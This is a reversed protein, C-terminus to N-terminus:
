RAPMENIIRRVEGNLKDTVAKTVENALDGKMAAILSAGNLIVEVQSNTQVKIVSPISVSAFAKALLSAADAFAPITGALSKTSSDLSGLSVGLTQISQSLGLSAKSFQAVPAQFEQISKSFEKLYSLNAESSDSGAGSPKNAQVDGVPGGSARYISKNMRQLTPLNSAAAQANMVFEGPSLMASVTDTGHPVTGGDAFGRMRRNLLRRQRNYMNNYQQRYIEFPTIPQGRRRRDQRKDQSLGRRINLAHAEAIRDGSQGLQVQGLKGRKENETNIVDGFKSDFKDLLDGAKSVGEQNNTRQYEALRKRLQNRANVAKGFNGSSVSKDDISKSFAAFQSLTRQNLSSKAAGGANPAPFNRGNSRSLIEALVRNTRTPQPGVEEYKFTNQDKGRAAQRSALAEKTERLKREQEDNAARRAQIEGQTKARRAAQESAIDKVRQAHPAFDTQFQAFEQHGNDFGEKLGSMKNKFIFDGTASKFAADKKIEAIRDNTHQDRIAANSEELSDKLKYADVIGTSGGLKSVSNIIHLVGGSLADGIVEESASKKRNPNFGRSQSEENLLPNLAPVFEGLKPGPLHRFIPNLLANTVRHLLTDKITSDGMKMFAKGYDSAFSSVPQDAAQFAAELGEGGDKIRRRIFRGPMGGDALYASKGNIEELLGRHKRASRANVVFEGPTLMAPVTDTGRPKFISGGLAKNQVPISTSKKLNETAELLSKSSVELTKSVDDLSDFKSLGESQKSLSESDDAAAHIKDQLAGDPVSVAFESSAINNTLRSQEGKLFDLRNKRADGYAGALEKGQDFGVLKNGEKDRVFGKEQYDALRGLYSVHASEVTDAPVGLRSAVDGSAADLQDRQLELIKRQEERSSQSNLIPQTFAHGALTKSGGQVSELFSTDKQSINLRKLESQTDRLGPLDPSALIDRARKLGNDDPGTAFRNNLSEARKFISQQKDYAITASNKKTELDRVTESKILADLRSLFNTNLAEMNKIFADGLGKQIGALSELASKARDNVQNEQGALSERSGQTRKTDLNVFASQPNLFNTSKAILRESAQNGTLGNRLKADGVSRLFNLANQINQSSFGRFDGQQTAVQAAQAGRNLERIQSPDSTLLKEGFSLQGAREREVVAMKEQISSLETSTDALNELAKQLNSAELSLESLREQAQDHNGNPDSLIKQQDAIKAQTIRFRDAISTPSLGDEGALRRQRDNFPTRLQELSLFDEPNRGTRLSRLGAESRLTTLGAFSAQDQTSGAQQRFQGAQTRLNGVKNFQDQLQRVIDPFLSTEGGFASDTLNEALKAPNHNILSQIDKPDISDVAEELRKRLDDSFGEFAKKIDGPLSEESFDSGKVANTLKSPLGRKIEDVKLLRQGFEGALPGKLRNNLFSVSGAFAGPDAGGVRGAAEAFGGVQGPAIQGSFLHSITDASHQLSIISTSASDIAQGLRQFKAVEITSHALQSAQAEQQIRLLLSSKIIEDFGERVKDAPVNSIKAITNALKGGGLEDFAKLRSDRAANIGGQTDQDSRKLPLDKAALEAIRGGIQHFQPLQPALLETFKKKRAEAEDRQIQTNGSSLSTDGFSTSIDNGTFQNYAFKAIRGAGLVGAATLRPDDLARGVLSGKLNRDFFNGGGGEATVKRAAEQATALIGDNVRGIGSSISIKGNAVADIDSAFKAFVKDFKIEEIRNEAEQLSTTWGALAGVAAGIAPALPALPGLLPSVAGGVQAGIAGFSVAGGVAHATKAAEINGGRPNELTGFGQELIQPTFAALLLGNNQAGLGFGALKNNIKRPLSPGRSPTDSNVNQVLQEPTLGLKPNLGLFRGVRNNGLRRAIASTEINMNGLNQLRRIPSKTRNAKADIRAQTEDSYVASSSRGTLPDIDSIRGTADDINGSANRNIDRRALAEGARRIKEYNIEKRRDEPLKANRNAIKVELDAAYKDALHSEITGGGRTINDIQRSAAARARGQVAATPIMNGRDGLGTSQDRNVQLYNQELQKRLEAELGKSGRNKELRQIYKSVQSDRQDKTLEPSNHEINKSYQTILEKRLRDALLKQQIEPTQNAVSQANAHSLIQRGTGVPPVRVVRVTEMPDSSRGILPITSGDGSSVFNGFKVDEKLGSRGVKHSASTVPEIRVTPSVAAVTRTTAFGYSGGFNNPDFIPSNDVPQGPHVILPQLPSSRKARPASPFVDSFGARAFRTRSAIELPISHVAPRSKAAGLGRLFNIDDEPKAVQGRSMTYRPVQLEADNFLRQQTTVRERSKNSLFLEREIESPTKVGSDQFNLLGQGSKDFRNSDRKVPARMQSIERYDFPRSKVVQPTKDPSFLDIQRASPKVPPEGGEFEGYKTSHTHGFRAFAIQGQNKAPRRASGRIEEDIESGGHTPQKTQKKVEKTGDSTAKLIKELLAVIKRSDGNDGPDPSAVRTRPPRKGGKGGGAVIPPASTAEPEQTTASVTEAQPAPFAGATHYVSNPLSLSSDQTTSSVTPMYFGPGTSTSISPDAFMSNPVGLPHVSETRIPRSRGHGSLGDGGRPNPRSNSRHVGMALQDGNIFKFRRKEEEASLGQDDAFPIIQSFDEPTKYPQSYKKKYESDFEDNSKKYRIEAERNAEHTPDYDNLDFQVGVGRATHDNEIVHDLTNLERDGYFSGGADVINQSQRDKRSVYRSDGTKLLRERAISEKHAGADRVFQELDDGSAGKRKIHSILHNVQRASGINELENHAADIYDDGALDVNESHITRLRENAYAKAQRTIEKIRDPSFETSGRSKEAEAYQKLLPPQSVEKMIPRGQKDVRKTDVKINEGSLYRKQVQEIQKPDRSDDISGQFSLLFPDNTAKVEKIDAQRVQVGGQGTANSAAGSIDIGNSQAYASVKAIDEPTANRSLFGKTPKVGLIRAMGAERSGEPLGVKKALAALRLKPDKKVDGGEAHGKAGLFKLFRAQRHRAYFKARATPEGTVPDAEVRRLNVRQAFNNAKFQDYNYTFGSPKRKIRGRPTDAIFGGDAYGHPTFNFHGDKHGLFRLPLNRDLLVEKELPYFSSSGMFAARHKGKLLIRMVDGESDDRDLSYKHAIDPLISTSLFAPDKIIQGISSNPDRTSIGMKGLFGPRVGRYLSVARGIRRHNIISSISNAQELIDPTINQNSRLAGNIIDSGLGSYKKILGAEHNGISNKLSDEKAEYFSQIDEPNHRADLIRGGSAFKKTMLDWVPINQDKAKAKLKAALKTRPDSSNLDYMVSYGGARQVEEPTFVFEKPELLVPVKGGSQFRRRGRAMDMLRGHGVKLSSRRNIVFSGAPLEAPIKDGTGTGGVVGGTQFGPRTAGASSKAERFRSAIGQKVQVFGQAIKIGAFTALLPILPELSKAFKTALEAGKLMNDLFSNLGKNNGLIRILDFFEEKVKTLRRQFSEQAKGADLTLSNAGAQAITYAKQATGFQQLLPIVRSIQRYGGITEVIQAFRPDTTPLGKVATSLRRIAEYAGVFQGKIDEGALRAEEGTFRLNVGLDKLSSVVTNSQLRGFITRLGTSIEDASERTTQRVSTFLGLLQNFAQKSSVMDGSASKFAGGTKRVVTVIDDSEVAFAASVTNIAGLSSEYDKATVNFQQRLAILGEATSNISDFTPALTTKALASLATRVEDATLGAQRLTTSVEALGKSSSGLTRSLISIEESIGAIDRKTTGSIQSLRVMENQFNIAQSVGEGFARRVLDFGKVVLIFAGFKRAAYGIDQGLQFAGSSASSLSGTLGRVQNNTKAINSNLSNFSASTRPDIGMSKMTRSVDAANRRVAALSDNFAKVKGDLGSVNRSATPDVKANITAPISRFQSRLKDAVQRANYPGAVYVGATIKFTEAM